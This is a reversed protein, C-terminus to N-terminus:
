EWEREKEQRFDDLREEDDREEDERNRAPSAAVAPVSGAVADRTSAGDDDAVIRSPDEYTSPAYWGRGIQQIRNGGRDSAAYYLANSVSTNTVDHGRDRLTTAVDRSRIKRGHDNVVAAVLEVPSQERSRESQSQDRAEPALGAVRTMYEVHGRWFDVDAQYDALRREKRELIQRAAPLKARVDDRNGLDVQLSDSEM